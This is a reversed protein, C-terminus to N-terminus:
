YCGEVEEMRKLLLVTILLFSPIGNKGNFPLLALLERDLGDAQEVMGEHLM